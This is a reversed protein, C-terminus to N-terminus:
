FFYVFPFNVRSAFLYQTTSIAIDLSCCTPVYASYYLSCLNCLFVSMKKIIKNPAILKAFTPIGISHFLSYGYGISLM